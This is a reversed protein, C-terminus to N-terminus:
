GRRQPSPRSRQQPRLARPAEPAPMATASPKQVPVLLQLPSSSCLLVAFSPSALPWPATQFAM